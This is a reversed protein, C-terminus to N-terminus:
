GGAVLISFDRLKGTAWGCLVHVIGVVVRNGVVFTGIVLTKRRAM